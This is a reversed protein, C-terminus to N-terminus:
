DQLSCYKDTEIIDAFNEIEMDVSTLIEDACRQIIRCIQLEAALYEQIVPNKRMDEYERELNQVDDFLDYANSGNQLLYNKKRFEDLRQRLQPEESVKRSVERFAKYAESGRLAASLQVTYEKIEDM